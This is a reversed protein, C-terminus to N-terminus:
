NDSHLAAELEEMTECINVVISPKSKVIKVSERDTTTQGHDGDYDHGDHKNMLAVSAPLIIIGKALLEYREMLLDLDESSIGAEKARERLTEVTVPEVISFGYANAKPFRVLMGEEDFDKCFVEAIGDEFKLLHAGFDVSPDPVFVDYSGENLVNCNSIKNGLGKVANDVLRRYGPRWVKTYFVPAIKGLLQPLNVGEHFDDAKPATGEEALISEKTSEVLENTRDALLEAAAEADAAFYTAATQTSVKVNGDGCETVDLVNYGSKQTLTFTQKLGNLDTFVQVGKEKLQKRTDCVIVLKGAYPGDQGKSWVARNFDDQVQSTVQNRCIVVIEWGQRELFRNMYRRRVVSANGKCMYPRSQQTTGLVARELVRFGDGLRDQMWDRVFESQSYLIGDVEPSYIGMYVAFVDVNIGEVAPALVQALRTSQQALEKFKKAVRVNKSVQNTMGCTLKAMISPFEFEDLNNCWFTISNNKIQGNSSLALGATVNGFEHVGSKMSGDEEFMASVIDESADQAELLDRLVPKEEGQRYPDWAYYKGQFEYFSGLFYPMSVSATTKDVVVNLLARNYRPLIRGDVMAPGVFPETYPSLRNAPSLIPYNGVELGADETVTVYLTPVYSAKYLGGEPHGDHAFATVDKRLIRQRLAHATLQRNSKITRVMSM